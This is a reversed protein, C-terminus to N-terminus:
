TYPASHNPIGDREQGWRLASYCILGWPLAEVYTATAYSSQEHFCGAAAVAVAVAGVGVCWGLLLWACSRGCAFLLLLPLRIELKINANSNSTLMKQQYQYGKLGADCPRTTTANEPKMNLDPEHLAM